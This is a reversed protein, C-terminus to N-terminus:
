GQTVYGADHGVVDDKDQSSTEDDSYPGENCNEVQFLRRRWIRRRRAAEKAGRGPGDGQPVIAAPIKRHALEFKDESVGLKVTTDLDERSVFHEGMRKNSGNDEASRRSAQLRQSPASGLVLRIFAHAVLAAVTWTMGQRRRLKTWWNCSSLRRRLSQSHLRILPPLIVNPAIPQKYHVLDEEHGGHYIDCFLFEPISQHVFVGQTSLAGLFLILGFAAWMIQALSPRIASESFSALSSRWKFIFIYKSLSSIKLVDAQLVQSISQKIRSTTTVSVDNFLSFVSYFKVFASYTSQPSSALSSECTRVSENPNTHTCSVPLEPSEVDWLPGRGSLAEISLHNNDTHLSQLQGDMPTVLNQRALEARLSVQALDEVCLLNRLESIQENLGDLEAHFDAVQRDMLDSLHATQDRIRALEKHMFSMDDSLTEKSDRLDLQAKRLESLGTEIKTIHADKAELRKDQVEISSAIEAKIIDELKLATAECIETILKVDSHNDLNKEFASQLADLREQLTLIHSEQMTITAANDNQLPGLQSLVKQIASTQATTRDECEKIVDELKEMKLEATDLRERANSPTARFFPTCYGDEVTVPIPALAFSATLPSEQPPGDTIKAGSRQQLCTNSIESGDESHPTISDAM